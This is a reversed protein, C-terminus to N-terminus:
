AVLAGAASALANNPSPEARVTSPATAAVEHDHGALM